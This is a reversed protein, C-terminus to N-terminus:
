PNVSRFILITQARWSTRMEDGKSFDVIKLHNTATTSATDYSYRLQTRESYL